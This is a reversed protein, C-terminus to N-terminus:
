DASIRLNSFAFGATGGGPTAIRLLTFNEAADDPFPIEESRGNVTLRCKRNERNISLSIESVEGPALKTELMRSGKDDNALLAIKGDARLMLYLVRGSKGSGTLSLFVNGGSPALARFAVTFSGTLAPNVAFDARAVKCQSRDDLILARGGLAPLDEVTVATDPNVEIANPGTALQDRGAPATAPPSGPQDQSFDADLVLKAAAAGGCLSLCFIVSLIQKM